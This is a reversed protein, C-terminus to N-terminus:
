SGGAGIPIMVHAYDTGAWMVYPGGSAPDTSMGQLSTAPDPVLLMLHPGDEIWAQGAAPETAFPDTNSAARGGRLMYAVGTRTIQPPTRHEYAELWAQWVPDLCMPDIGPTAPDDPLCLWGNKGERLQRVAGAEDFDIITAARAIAAPGGSEALAIRDPQAAQEAAASAVAEDGSGSSCGAAAGSLVLTAVFGKM